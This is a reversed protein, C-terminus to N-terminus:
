QLEITQRTKNTEIVLNTGNEVACYRIYNGSLMNSYIM